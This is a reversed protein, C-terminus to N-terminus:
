SLRRWSHRVLLPGFALCIFNIFVNLAADITEIEYRRNQLNFSVDLLGLFILAAGAMIGALSAARAARWMLWASVLLLPALYALDPLPFANEFALYRDCELTTRACALDGKRLCDEMRLGMSRCSDALFYLLWFGAFGGALIAQLLSYVRDTMKTSHMFDLQGSAPIGDISKAPPLM